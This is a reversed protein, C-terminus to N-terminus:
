VVAKAFEVVLEENGYSAFQSRTEIGDVYCGAQRYVLGIVGRSGSLGPFTEGMLM